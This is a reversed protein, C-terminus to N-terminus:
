PLRRGATFTTTIRRDGPELVVRAKNGAADAWDVSWAAKDLNAASCFPLSRDGHTKKEVPKLAPYLRQVFAKFTEFVVECEAGDGYPVSFTGKTLGRIRDVYFLTTVPTGAVPNRFILVRGTDGAARSMVYSGSVAEVDKATSGWPLAGVGGIRDAPWPPRQQARLTGAAILQSALVLGWIGPGSPRSLEM